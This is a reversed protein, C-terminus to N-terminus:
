LLSSVSIPTTPPTPWPRDEQFDRLATWALVDDGPKIQHPDHFQLRAFQPLTNQQPHRGSCSTAM